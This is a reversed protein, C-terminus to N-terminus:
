TDSQRLIWENGDPDKIFALWGFGPLQTKPRIIEGGNAEIAKITEDIDKVDITNLTSASPDTRRTLGGNIGPEKEDGTTILWHEMPGDWKEFKWGFVTKYFEIVKEIDEAVFDFHVVRPM